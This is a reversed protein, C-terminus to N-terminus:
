SKKIFASSIAESIDKLGDIEHISKQILGNALLVANSRKNPDTIEEELEKMSELFKKTEWLRETAGQSKKGLNLDFLRPNSVKIGYTKEMPSVSNGEGFLDAMLKSIQKKDHLVESANKTALYDSIVLDIEAMVVLAGVQPTKLVFNYLEGRLPSIVAAWSGYLISDKVEYIKPAIKEHMRKSLFESWEMVLIGSSTVIITSQLNIKSGELKFWFWKWSLGQHHEDIETGDFINMSLQATNIPTYVIQFAFFLLIAGIFIFTWATEM